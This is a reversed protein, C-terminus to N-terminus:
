LERAFFQEISNPTRGLLYSLTMTSGFLGVRSYYEFMSYLTTRAYEPMQKDLAMQNWDSLCTEKATVMISLHRTLKEAIEAQSLPDTGVLEYVGGAMRDDQFSKVVVEALDSLDLYSLKSTTPYPMAYIGNRIDKLYGHINQMYACPQLIVFPINSAFIEDEVLMKQWHHPMQKIQPHLVSHYVIRKVQSDHAAQIVHKGIELEDPSMNPCILYIGDVDESARHLDYVSDLSGLYYESAGANTVQNAYESKHILAKVTIKASSLSKIVALGTKGSAGTVLIRNIQTM